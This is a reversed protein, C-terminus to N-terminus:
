PPDPPDPEFGARRAIAVAQIQSRAGLKRLISKVQSRVTELAVVREAAIDEIRRGLALRSLVEREAATLPALVSERHAEVAEAQHVLGILEQRRAPGMIPRGALVARVAEVLEHFPESKHIVGVAGAHVAPAIARDDESATLLVVVCGIARMPAILPVSSRDGLNLDLLVVGGGQEAAARVIAEDDQAVPDVTEVDFGARRLSEAVTHSIIAHDDVLLLAPNM